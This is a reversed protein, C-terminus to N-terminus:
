QLQTFGFTKSKINLTLSEVKGMQAWFGAPTALVQWNGISGGGTVALLDKIKLILVM